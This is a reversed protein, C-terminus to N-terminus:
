EECDSEEVYESPDLYLMDGSSLQFGIRCNMADAVKVLDKADWRDYSFKNNLSAASKMGLPKVLDAQKKGNMNLLARVSDSIKM